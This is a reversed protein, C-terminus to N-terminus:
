GGDRACAADREPARECLLLCVAGPCSSQAAAACVDALRRSVDGASLERAECTVVSPLAGKSAGCVL